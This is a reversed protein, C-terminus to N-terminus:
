ASVYEAVLNFTKGYDTSTYRGPVLNGRVLLIQLANSTGAHLSRLYDKDMSEFPIDLIECMDEYVGSNGYPRKCDIAPAGFECDEWRVVANQLLKIHEKQVVFEWNM